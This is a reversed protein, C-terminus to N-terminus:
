IESHYMDRCRKTNFVQKSDYIYYDGFKYNYRFQQDKCKQCTDKVKQTTIGDYFNHGYQIEYHSQYGYNKVHNENLIKELDIDVKSGDSKIVKIESNM